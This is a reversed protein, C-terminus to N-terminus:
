WSYGWREFDAAWQDEVMRRARASYYDRHDPRRGSRQTHPLKPVDLGRTRCMADFEEALREFRLVHDLEVDLVESQLLTGYRETEHPRLIELWYEMSMGLGGRMNKHWGGTAFMSALRGFPNRVVAFKVYSEWYAAYRAQAQDARIHKTPADITDWADGVCAVEVSTGGTRTIHVFILKHYHDIM